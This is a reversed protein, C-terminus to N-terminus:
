IDSTNMEMLWLSFVEAQNKIEKELKHIFNNIFTEILSIISKYKEFNGMFKEGALTKFVGEGSRM